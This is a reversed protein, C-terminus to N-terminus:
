FIWWFTKMQLQKYEDLTILTGDVLMMMRGRHPHYHLTCGKLKERVEDAEKIKEKLPKAM